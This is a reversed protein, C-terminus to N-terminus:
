VGICLYRFEGNKDNKISSYNIWNCVYERKLPIVEDRNKKTGNAADDSWMLEGSIKRGEFLLFDEDVSNNKVPPQWYLHDNTMLIAAGMVGENKSVANEISQLDAIFDYRGQDQASHNKLEYKQGEYSFNLKATKNRLNFIYIQDSKSCEVLLDVKTGQFYGNKTSQYGENELKELLANQFSKESQFFPHKYSLSQIITKIDLM